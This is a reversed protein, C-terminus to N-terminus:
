YRLKTLQSLFRKEVETAPLAPSFLYGQHFECNFQQLQEFQEQTEVGEAVVAIGLGHYLHIVTKTIEFCGEDHMMQRVFSRDIKLVSIPLHHLQSLSSYGTGFDDVSIQIGEKQLSELKSGAVEVNNIITSETVELKLSGPALGTDQLIQMVQELLDPQLLQRVSLNVSIFFSCCEPYQRQWLSLQRCSESLVWQGLQVILGTEEALPIFQNPPVMGKTPHQWRVLAEFGAITRSNSSIIPQYYVEFQEKKLAHRLDMELQLREKSRNHMLVDFVGYCAKGQSKAHYMAIDADRLLDESTTQQATSLVIGISASTFIEYGRLNFPQSLAESIQEAVNRAEDLGVIGSLLIIFEDGGFRAALANAPLCNQIRHSAAMLLEDGIIHGLSDNVVKFSDLDLFLVGFLYQNNHQYKSFAEELHKIFAARNMLNTLADHYASYHLKSFSDQLQKAMSNFAKALLGIEQLKSDPIRQEWQGESLAGAAGVMKLIPRILYHSTTLGMAIAVMLALICLLVTTYTSSYIQAMFDTEPVVVVIWWDLGFKDTFPTIRVFERQGFRNVNPQSSPQLKAFDGFQHLLYKATNQILPDRSQTALLRETAEGQKTALPENSSSAVLFGNRELIFARGNQGIKLTRLFTSLTTLRIDASLVGLFRGTANYIPHGASISLIGSGDEWQYIQSWAPKNAQVIDSYGAELRHDWKKLTQVIRLRNGQQDTQYSHLDGGTRTSSVEDIVLNQQDVYGAGIYKGNAAGFAVYDVDSNQVQQWFYHGTAQFNNLNLINSKVASSNLSTIDQPTKLYCNTQQTIRDSIENVLQSALDNM